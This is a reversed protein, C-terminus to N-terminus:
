KYQIREREYQEIYYDSPYKTGFRIVQGNEKEVLIPGIGVLLYRYDKTELYKRSEAIFIWGYEKEITNEDRIILEDDYGYRSTDIAKEALKKADQITIM